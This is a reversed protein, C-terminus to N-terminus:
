AFRLAAAQGQRRRMAFGVAGAGLMVMGWTGPEPVSSSAADPTTAAISVLSGGLLSADVPAISTPTYGSPSAFPDQTLDYALFEENVGRQSLAYLTSGSIAISVLSGGLLSADVPAISTPAYGSPSAFPDQTLDYTLFEENVGRQSLAYLTSGSIAISVLSGGLLSADVPAISTPTYGSPSAFPDQTLDYTLFEESTGRQSLAYLTNGSIAISILSGGLLSADVPAISTPAYGSPSAFPDQTLDYALFEENVGRQSLAYLTNGTIAISVLSGGLLSADAPAISTPTYGSPSAFPDQTLDYALFEDSTSRQSLAYLTPAAAQVALPAFLM